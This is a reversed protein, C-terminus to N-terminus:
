LAVLLIKLRPSLWIFCYILLCFNMKVFIGQLGNRIKHDFNVNQIINLERLTSIDILKLRPFFRIKPLTILHM